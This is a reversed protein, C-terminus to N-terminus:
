NPPGYPDGIHITPGVVGPLQPSFGVNVTLPGDSDTRTAQITMQFSVSGTLSAFTVGTLFGALMQDYDSASMTLTVGAGIAGALLIGGSQSATQAQGVGNMAVMFRAVGSNLKQMWEPGSNDGYTAWFKDWLGDETVAYVSAVAMQSARIFSKAVSSAVESSAAHILNNGFSGGNLATEFAGRVLGKSLGLKVYEPVLNDPGISSSLLPGLYSTAGGTLAGRLGARLVDNLDGGALLTTGASSAFGASAGTIIATATAGADISSAISEGVWGGAYGLAFGAVMLMGGTVDSKRPVLNKMLIDGDETVAYAQFGPSLIPANVIYYAIKRDIPEAIRAQGFPLMGLVDWVNTPNNL